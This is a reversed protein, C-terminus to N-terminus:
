FTGDVFCNENYKYILQAQFKSIFLVMKASKYALYKDGRETLYYESENPLDTLYEIDKPLTKTIYRYISSKVSDYSPVIKKIDINNNSEEDSYDDSKRKQIINLSTNYLDKCKINYIIGM